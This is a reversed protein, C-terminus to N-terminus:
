NHLDLIHSFLAERNREGAQLTDRVKKLHPHTKKFQALTPDEIQHGSICLLVSSLTISGNGEEKRIIIPTDNTSEKALIEVKHDLHHFSPGYDYALHFSGSEKLGPIQSYVEISTLMNHKVPPIADPFPGIAWANVLDLGPRIITEREDFSHYTSHAALHYAGGCFAIIHLGQEVKEKLRPAIEKTFAIPYISEQSSAAPLILRDDPKFDCEIIETISLSILEWRRRKAEWGIDSLAAGNFVYITSQM